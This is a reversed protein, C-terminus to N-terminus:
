VQLNVIQPCIRRESVSIRAVSVPLNFRRPGASGPNIFLVENRAEIVARHSHGFVVAALGAAAPDLDLASIEHLVLFRHRGVTVLERTPLRL